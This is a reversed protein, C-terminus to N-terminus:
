PSSPQLTCPTLQLTDPTSHVNYPGLRPPTVEKAVADLEVQYELREMYQGELPTPYLTYPTPHLACPTPQLTFPTSHVNYPGLRPPPAKKDVADLEAQFELRGM